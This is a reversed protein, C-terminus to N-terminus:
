KGTRNTMPMALKKRSWDSVSSTTFTSPRNAGCVTVSIEVPV